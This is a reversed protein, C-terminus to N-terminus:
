VLRKHEAAPSQHDLELGERHGKPGNSCDPLDQSFEAKLLSGPYVPFNCTGSIETAPLNRQPELTAHSKRSLWKDEVEWQMTRRRGRLFCSVLDGQVLGTGIQSQGNTGIISVTNDTTM